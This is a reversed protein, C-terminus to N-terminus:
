SWTVGGAVVSGIIKTVVLIVGVNKKALREAEARAEAETNHVKPTKSYSLVGDTTVM